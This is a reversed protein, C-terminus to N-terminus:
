SENSDALAMAFSVVSLLLQAYKDAPPIMNKAPSTLEVITLTAVSVAYAMDLGNVIQNALALDDNRDSKRKPKTGRCWQIFHTFSVFALAVSIATGALATAWYLLGWVQKEPEEGMKTRFQSEVWMLYVMAVTSLLKLMHLFVRRTDM